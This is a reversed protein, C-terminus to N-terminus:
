DLYIKMLKWTKLHLMSNKFKLIECYIFIKIRNKKKKIRNFLIVKYVRDQIKVKWYINIYM